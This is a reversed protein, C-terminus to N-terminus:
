ALVRGVAADMETIAVYYRQFHRRIADKKYYGYQLARLRSRDSKLYPPKGKLGLYADTDSFSEWDEYLGNSSKSGEQLM